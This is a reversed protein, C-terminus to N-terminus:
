RLLHVTEDLESGLDARVVVRLYHSLCKYDVRGEEKSTYPCDHFTEDILFSALLYLDLPAAILFIQEFYHIRLVQWVEESSGTRLEAHM